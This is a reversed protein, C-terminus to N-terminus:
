GELLRQITLKGIHEDWDYGHAKSYTITRRIANRAAEYSCFLTGPNNFWLVNDRDLSLASATDERLVIYHPSGVKYM